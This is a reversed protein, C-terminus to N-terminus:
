YLGLEKLKNVVTLIENFEGNNFGLDYDKLLDSSKDDEDYRESLSEREEKIWELFQNFDM